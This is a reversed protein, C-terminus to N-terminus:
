SFGTFSSHEAIVGILFKFFLFNEQAANAYIEINNSTAIVTIQKGIQTTTPLFAKGGTFTCSNVDFPLVTPTVTLTAVGSTLTASGAPGQPGTPGPSGQAALLAWSTTDLNPPTIGTVPAICFWSAGGYGVADDIVYSVGMTWNGQWELGAPGVPGAIGAPGIPGQVGPPINTVEQDIYDVITKMNAGVNVPTISSTTVKNTIDVDIQTKIQTSTAM